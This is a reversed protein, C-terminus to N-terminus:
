RTTGSQESRKWTLKFTAVGDTLRQKIEDTLVDVQSIELWLGPQSQYFYKLLSRCFDRMDEVPIEKFAQLNSLTLLILSATSDRSEQPDQRLIQNLRQGRELQQQTEEDVDSGFQAFSQKERFQALTVRLPGATKRMARTQADGGVRSVSLGVNIAPRQGAFFLSTELYIQGDTISIVNTPVYASIDGAQTEVIPIATLSGGGLKENMQAARELLRSHIYFIDGPFAERGPPRRLLLSIARYAQAHRTLDDYVILVDDGQRMFYEAMACGAYPAIYQQGAADSAGAVVVTTYVMAGERKLLEIISKVTSLKQGIAVYICKVNQDKQHIITDIAITTKGTQRDGVILERQGRGIPVMADIATIGTYLPRNVKDRDIIRPAPSEIPFHEMDDFNLPEGDLPRRPDVVRGLLESGCPVAWQRKPATASIELKLRVAECLLMVVM